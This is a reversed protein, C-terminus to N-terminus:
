EIVIVDLERKEESLALDYRKLYERLLGINNTDTPLVIDVKGKYGTEDILKLSLRNLTFQIIGWINSYRIHIDGDYEQKVHKKHKSALKDYSSTRKLVYCKILRKEVRSKLGFHQYLYNRMRSFASDMNNTRLVLDYCYFGTLSNVDAKFKNSDPFIVQSPHLPHVEPHTFSYLAHLPQNRVSLRIVGDKVPLKKTGSVFDERYNSLYSYEMIRNKKGEYDYLMLPDVALFDRSSIPEKKRRFSVEGGGAFRSLHEITLYNQSAIAVIKGEGNVWVNHPVSLHPFLEHLKKDGAVMTTQIRGMAPNEKQQQVIKDYHEDTVLLFQLSDKFRKQLSDVIPMYKRCTGCGTYFFFIVSPKDKVLDKFAVSEKEYNIFSDIVLNPMKDGIELQQAHGVGYACLLLIMIYTKM